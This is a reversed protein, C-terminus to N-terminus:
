WMEKRSRSAGTERKYPCKHNWPAWGSLGPYHRLRLIKLKTVDTFKKWWTLYCIRSKQANPCPCKKPPPPMISGLGVMMICSLFSSFCFYDSFCVLLNHTSVFFRDAVRQEAERSTNGVKNMVQSCPKTSSSAHYRTGVRHWSSVWWIRVQVSSLHFGPSTLLSEWRPMVIFSLVFWSRSGHRGSEVMGMCLQLMKQKKHRIFLLFCSVRPPLPLNHSWHCTKGGRLDVQPLVCDIARGSIRTNIM